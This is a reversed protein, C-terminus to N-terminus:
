LPPTRSKRHAWSSAARACSPKSFSQILEASQSDAQRGHLPDNMPMATLHEAGTNWPLSRYKAEDIYARKTWEAPVDYVKDSM